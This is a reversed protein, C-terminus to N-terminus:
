PAGEFAVLVDGKNVAAGKEVLVEAVRGAAAARLENEMKMAEVVVIRDGVEVEDGARVAVQVVLGPMPARVAGARRGADPKASMDRLKATREDLVEAEVLRGDWHLAWRGGPERKATAGRSRGDLLLSFRVARGRRAGAEDGGTARFDCAMERGDVRVRDGRVEVVRVGGPLVVRYRGRGALGETVRRVRGRGGPAAGL